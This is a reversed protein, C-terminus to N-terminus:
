YADLEGIELEKIAALEAKNTAYEDNSRAWSVLNPKAGFHEALTRHVPSVPVMASRTPQALTELRSHIAVTLLCRM